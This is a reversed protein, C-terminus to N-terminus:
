LMENMKKGLMALNNKTIKIDMQRKAIVYISKEYELLSVKNREQIKQIEQRSISINTADFSDYNCLNNDSHNFLTTLFDKLFELLVLANFRM